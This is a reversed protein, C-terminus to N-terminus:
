KKGVIKRIAEAAKKGFIRYIIQYVKGRFRNNKSEWSAMFRHISVTNETIVLRGSEMDIPNFYDKPYINIGDITQIGGIQQLGHYKLIKTTRQVITTLDLTGDAKLFHAEEYDDLIEKYLALGPAAALGLGPNVTLGLEPLSVGDTEFGMFPGANIIHSMDKIVEVDTDFYLGGHEYLIKLRAYDSVFAWKKAEYAERVYNICGVDFNNENWEIIEYDPLYKKWSEICKVALAPLPNGGFWCYHIKKPIMTQKDVGEEKTQIFLLCFPILLSWDTLLTEFTMIFFTAIIASTMLKQKGYDFRRFASFLVSFFAILGFVGFYCLIALLSNHASLLERPGFGIKNSFGFLPNRKVLDLAELWIVERGTYFGKGFFTTEGVMFGSSYLGIYVFVFLFSCFLGIFLIRKTKKYNKYKCFYFLLVFIVISVLSTRASTSNIYLISLGLAIFQLIRKRKIKLDTDEIFAFVFVLLYFCLMAMCNPNIKLDDPFYPLIPVYYAGYATKSSFVTLIVLLIFVMRLTVRKHQKRTLKTKSFLFVSALLTIQTIASGYGSGNVISCFLAWVSSLLVIGLYLSFKQRLLIEALLVLVCAILIYNNNILTNSFSLYYILFSYQVIAIWLTRTKKAVTDLYRLIVNRATRSNKNNKSVTDM